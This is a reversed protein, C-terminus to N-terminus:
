SARPLGDIAGLAQVASSGVQCGLTMAARLADVSPSQWFGSRLLGALLGAMFGDGAGTTDVVEVAPAPVSVTQGQWLAIAGQPGRTVVALPVGERALKELAPEANTEGCVVATEEESMKFLTCLPVLAKLLAKLEDPNKWVHLRVNPDCAVVKGAARAWEVAKLAAERAPPLVLSNTGLHLVQASAIFAQEVHKLELRYEATDRRFFVFSREGAGDISIFALGTQGGPLQVFYRTDVGERALGARLFLGFEDDGTVGLLASRIGLRALGVAINSPGGGLCPRWLAVDRVKAGRGPPLFDM